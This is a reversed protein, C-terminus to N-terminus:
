PGESHTDGSVTITSIDNLDTPAAVDTEHLKQKYIITKQRASEKTVALMVYLTGRLTARYESRKITEPSDDLDPGEFFFDATTDVWGDSVKVLVGCGVPDPNFFGSDSNEGANLAIDLKALIDDRSMESQAWIDMQIPQECMKLQWVVNTKTSGSNVASLLKPEIPEDNRAGAMLLTVLRPPMKRDGSPWRNEIIVGSMSTHLWRALANMAAQQITVM